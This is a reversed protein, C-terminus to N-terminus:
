PTLSRSRSKTPVPGAEKKAVICTQGAERFRVKVFNENVDYRLMPDPSDAIVLAASFTEKVSTRLLTLDGKYLAEFKGGAGM